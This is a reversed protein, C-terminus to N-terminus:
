GGKVDSSQKVSYFDHHLDYIEKNIEASLDKILWRLYALMENDNSYNHHDSYVNILADLKSSQDNIYQILTAVRDFNVTNLYVPTPTNTM